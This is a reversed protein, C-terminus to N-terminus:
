YFDFFGLEDMEEVITHVCFLDLGVAFHLVHILNIRWISYSKQCPYMCQEKEGFLSAIGYYYMTQWDDFSRTWRDLAISYEM